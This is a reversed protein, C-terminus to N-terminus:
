KGRHICNARRGHSWVADIQEFRLGVPWTGGANGGKGDDALPRKRQCTHAHAGPWRKRSRHGRKLYNRHSALWTTDGGGTQVALTIPNHRDDDGGDISTSKTGM